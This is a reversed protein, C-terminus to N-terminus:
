AAPQIEGALRNRAIAAPKILWDIIDAWIEHLVRKGM